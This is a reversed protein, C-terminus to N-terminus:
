GKAADAQTIQKRVKDVADFPTDAMAFQSLRYTDTMGRKWRMDSAECCWPKLGIPVADGGGGYESPDGPALWPFGDPLCKLVVCWGDRRMAEMADLTALAAIQRECQRQYELDDRRISEGINTQEDSM